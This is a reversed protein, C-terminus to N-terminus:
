LKSSREGEAEIEQISEELESVRKKLKSERHLPCKIKLHNTSGCIWYRRLKFKKGHYCISLDYGKISQFKSQLNRKQWLVKQLSKTRKILKNKVRPNTKETPTERRVKADM